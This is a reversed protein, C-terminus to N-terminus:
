RPRGPSRGQLGREISSSPSLGFTAKAGTRTATVPRVIEGGSYSDISSSPRSDGQPPQLRSPLQDVGLLPGPPREARSSTSLWHPGPHANPAPARSSISLSHPGPHPAGNPALARLQDVGSRDPRPRRDHREARSGPGHARNCKPPLGHAPLMSRRHGNRAHGKPYPTIPLVLSESERMRPELGLVGASRIVTAQETRGTTYCKPPSPLHLRTPLHEQAGDDLPRPRRGRM